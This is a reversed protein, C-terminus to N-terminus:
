SRDPLRNARSNRAVKDVLRAVGPDPHTERGMVWALIAQDPQELLSQLSDREESSLGEFCREVFSGLILDLERMGRRCQWQLKARSSM